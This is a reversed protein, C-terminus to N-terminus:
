DLVKEYINILNHSVQESLLALDHLRLYGEVENKPNVACSLMETSHLFLEDNDFSHAVRCFSLGDLLDKVNGVPTSVVPCGALVAEKVSNPSGEYDSTLLFLDASRILERVVEPEENSILRTKINFGLNSNKLKKNIEMFRDLRKQPRNIDRSSIFLILKEDTAVGHKDRCWERNLNKFMDSNIGNPLHYIDETHSLIRRYVDHNQDKYIIAVNLKKVIVRLLVNSLGNLYPRNGAFEKLLPNQLSLVIRNFRFIFSLAAVPLISYGHMVHVVEFKQNKLIRFLDFLAIIYARLGKMRGNIFYVRHESLYVSVSEVQRQNFIGLDPASRTPWSNVVYLVSIAM